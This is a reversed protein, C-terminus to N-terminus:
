FLAAPVPCEGDAFVLKFVGLFGVFQDPSDLNRLRLSMLLPIGQLLASSHCTQSAKARLGEPM